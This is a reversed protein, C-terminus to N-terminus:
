PRAFQQAIWESGVVRGREDTVFSGQASRSFFAQGIGTVALPYLIGTLLLTVVTTRLAILLTSKM